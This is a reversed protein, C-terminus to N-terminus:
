NVLANGHVTFLREAAPKPEYRTAEGQRHLAFEELCSKATARGAPSVELGQEKRGAELRDIVPEFDSAEVHPKCDDCARWNCHSRFITGPGLEYLFTKAAYVWTPNPGGCFDCAM